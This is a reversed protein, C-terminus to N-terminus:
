PLVGPFVLRFNTAGRQREPRRLVELDLRHPGAPLDDALLELAVLGNAPYWEPHEHAVTQWEGGDLRWRFDACLRGAEVALAVGRGNFDFALGAGPAVTELVRAMWYNQPFRQVSWPGTTEVADFALRTAGEWHAPHLPAPRADGAPLAGPGPADLLERRLFAIVSEAYSQSGRHQPHIGDPLWVEWRLRGRMVEQLAHLGMWVSGVGYHEALTEFEAVSAPMEGERMAPYMPQSFTYAFVVDRGEGALLQRLLGERSRERRDTPHGNDNVAYEVFVLDCDHVLIDRDARFAALGSGTAGIAANEVTIRAAPFAEVLWASVPGPWNHGPRADTISGGLFGVTLAGEALARRTRALGQRHRHVPLDFPTGSTESV